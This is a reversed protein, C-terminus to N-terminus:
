GEIGKHKRLMKYYEANAAVSKENKVREASAEIRGYCSTHYYLGDCIILESKMIRKSCERCYYYGPAAEDKYRRRPDKM